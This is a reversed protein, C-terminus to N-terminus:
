TTVCLHCSDVTSITLNLKTVLVNRLSTYWLKAARINGYLSCTVKYVMDSNEECLLPMSILQRAESILNLLSQICFSLWIRSWDVVFFFSLAKLKSRYVQPNRVDYTKMTSSGIWCEHGPVLTGGGLSPAESDRLFLTDARNDKSVHLVSLAM